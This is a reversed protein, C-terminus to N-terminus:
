RSEGERQAENKESEREREKALVIGTQGRLKSKRKICEIERERKQYSQKLRERM